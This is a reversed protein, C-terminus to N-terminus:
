GQPNARAPRVLAMASSSLAARMLNVTHDFDKKSLISAPSHIYRCPIAVPVTPVGTRSLHIAGADTGGKGPQKIQYPIRAAEATAVLFQVLTKDAIMSSDMMSIAPGKGLETTPSTDTDRPGDDCITGELVFARDPQVSYAAVRAGRLGVEEMTTFVPHLDCPYPGAKILEILAACGARDDLAKGKVTAGLDEFETDFVAPDGQSVLAEAEERSCVGIDIVMADHAIGQNREEKKTLHVPKICILGPIRNPGIWVRKAPLVRDDIGGVKEFFLLGKDNAHSIMLGVEDMHASVMVSARKRATGKQVAILNGLHDCRLSDVHGRLEEVVIARVEDERGSVGAANSLRQLVNTKMMNLVLRM